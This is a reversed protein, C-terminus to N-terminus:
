KQTLNEIKKLYEQSILAKPHEKFIKMSHNFFKRANNFNKELFAVIGIYQIPYGTEIHDPGYHNKFIILGEELHYYAQKFNGLFGENIGMLVHCWGINISTKDFYKKYKQYTEDFIIKADKYKKSGTLAHALNMNAWLLATNYNNKDFIDATIKLHKEAEQYHGTNNLFIGLYGSAIGLPVSRPSQEALKMATLFKEKALNYNGQRELIFGLMSLVRIIAEHNKEKSKELIPLSQNFFKRAEEYRGYATCHYGLQKAANAELNRLKLNHCKILAEKLIRSAKQDNQFSFYRNGAMLQLELSEKDGLINLHKSFQYAHETLIVVLPYEQASPYFNENLYKFFLNFLKQFSLQHKKIDAVETLAPLLIKHTSEHISFVRVNNKTTMNVIFSHKKLAHIFADTIRNGYHTELFELPIDNYHIVSIIFLLEKFEPCQNMIDQIAISIIQDRTDHYPGSSQNFNTPIAELGKIYDDPAFARDSMYHSAVSVDLPFPPIKQLFTEVCPSSSDMKRVIKEFLQKKETSTLPPIELVQRYDIALQINADRTTILIKGEGCMDKDTLLYPTFEKYSTKLDDYIIIWKSHSRLYKKVFNLLKFFREQGAFRTSILEYEKQNKPNLDGIVSALTEFSLELSRISQANLEWVLTKANMKSYIRALTTKGAGGIGAIAVIPNQDPDEHNKFLTDLENLDNQRILLKNKPQLYLNSFIEKKPYFFGGILGAVLIGLLSYKYFKQHKIPKKFLSPKKPLVTKTGQHKTLFGNIISTVDSSKISEKLLELFCLEYSKLSPSLSRSGNLSIVNDDDITLFPEVKEKSVEVDLFHLDKKIQECVIGSGILNIVKNKCHEKILSLCKEFDFKLLIKFYHEKLTEYQNSSEIHNIAEERNNIHTKQFINRTHTEITKPSLNLLAAIAKFSRGSLMCALVDKERPTFSTGSLSFSYDEKSPQIIQYCM